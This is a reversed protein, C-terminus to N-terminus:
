GRLIAGPPTKAAKTLSRFSIKRIPVTAEWGTPKGALTSIVRVPYGRKAWKAAMTPEATYLLADKSTRDWRIITEREARLDSTLDTM